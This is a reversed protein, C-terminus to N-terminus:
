QSVIRLSRWWSTNSKPREPLPSRLRVPEDGPAVVLRASALPHNKRDVVELRWEVAVLSGAFSWPAAPLSDPFHPRLGAAPGARGRELRHRRRRHRSGRHVVRPARHAARAPRRCRPRPHFGPHRGPAFRQPTWLVLGQGSHAVPTTGAATFAIASPGLVPLIFRDELDALHPIDGEFLIEWSLRNNHANFSPALGSGSLALPIFGERLALVDSSDFIIEDVLDAHDTITDTGRRHVSEERVRLRIRLRRVGSGRLQWRLRHTADLRPPANELWARAPPTFLRSISHVFGVIMALGILVFPILFVPLFWGIFGNGFEKVALVVFVSVIGNWFLTIFGLGLFAAVRTEALKLPLEGTQTEPPPQPKATAAAARRGQWAGVIIGIGVIPFIGFGFGLWIQLPARRQIVASHPAAPDVHCTLRAGPPLSAVIARM